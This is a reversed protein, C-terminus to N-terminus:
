WEAVGVERDGIDHFVNGEDERIHEQDSAANEGYRKVMSQQHVFENNIDRLAARTRLKKIASNEIQRVRERSVGIMNGIEALTHDGAEAALFSCNKYSSGDVWWPCEM